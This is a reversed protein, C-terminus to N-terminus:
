RYFLFLNCFPGVANRLVSDIPDERLSLGTSRIPACVVRTVGGVPTRVCRSMVKSEYACVRSLDHAFASEARCRRSCPRYVEVRDRERERRRNGAGKYVPAFHPDAAHRTLSVLLSAPSKLTGAQTGLTIHRVKFSRGSNRERPARTPPPRARPLPERGKAIAVVLFPPISERRPRAGGGRGGNGSPPTTRSFRLRPIRPVIRASFRSEYIEITRRTARPRELYM